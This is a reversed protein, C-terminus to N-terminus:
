CHYQYLKRMDSGGLDTHADLAALLASSTTRLFSIGEVRCQKQQKLHQVVPIFDGDGSGLVVVDLKEAFKIMDMAIGLDWDGKTVGGTFLQVPKVIVEYDRRMADLFSEKAVDQEVTVDYFKACYLTRGAVCHDRIKKYDLRARMQLQALSRFINQADIFVGVRGAPSTHIHM